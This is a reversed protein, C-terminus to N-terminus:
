HADYNTVKLSVLRTSSSPSITADDCADWEEDFVNETGSGGSDYAYEYTIASSVYSCIWVTADVVVAPTFAVEKWAFTGNAGISGAGSCQISDGVAGANDERIVIYFTGPNVGASQVYFYGHTITDDITRKICRVDYQTSGPPDAQGISTYGYAADTGSATGGILNNAALCPTALFLFCLSIRSLFALM